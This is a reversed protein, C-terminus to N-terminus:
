AAIKLLYMNAYEIGTLRSDNRSSLGYKGDREVIVVDENVIIINDYQSKILTNDRYDILGWYGDDFCVGITTLDKDYKVDLYKPEISLLERRTIFGYKGNIKVSAFGSSTFFGIEEVGLDFEKNFSAEFHDSALAAEGDKHLIIESKNRYEIRDYEMDLVNGGSLDIVGSKGDLSVISYGDIFDTVLDYKPSIRANGTKDVFGWKDSIKVAALGQSFPQAGDYGNTSKEGTETVFWWKGDLKVAYQGDTKMRISDYLFPIMTVNELNIVGWKGDKKAVLAEKARVFSFEDYVFPIIIEGKKSIIGWKSNKKMCIENLEEDFGFGDEYEFPIEVGNSRNICGYKSDKKVISLGNEFFGSAYDYELEIVVKGTLSLFGYKGDKVIVIEPSNFPDVCGILMFSSVIMILLFVVKKM